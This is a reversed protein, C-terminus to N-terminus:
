SARPRKHAQLIHMTDHVPTTLEVGHFQSIKRHMVEFYDQVQMAARDRMQREVTTADGSAVGIGSLILKMEVPMKKKANMTAIHRALGLM